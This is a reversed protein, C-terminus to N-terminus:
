NAVALSSLTKQINLAIAPLLILLAACFILFTYKPQYAKCNVHM